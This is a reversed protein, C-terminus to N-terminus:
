ITEITNTNIAELAKGIVCGPLFQSNDIAQAVGPTNSTVLVQGKRIPGQVLCPVRGTLAVPLGPTAGNMLYAPNTSIIGAVTTDHSTTTVTIEANGGFVVVTGPAYEADATYNEALDAYQAQVAKGYVTSWWATSSGLTIAVNSSPVLSTGVTLGGSLTVATSTTAGRGTVTALTSNTGITVAGTAGSVTIDTGAVASTVGANNLTVSSGLSVAGGGSLGTGATVTISSNALQGNTIGASSSLQSTTIGSLQTLPVTGSSLNSANLSTLYTGTGVMNAGINGVTVGYVNTANITSVYETSNVIETNSFTQTGAVVLNGGVYLNGTIGAGGQVVLAGTTSSISTTTSGVVVNGGLPNLIIPYYVPSANSYGSQIWQGFQNPAGGGPYQGIALYNGGSGSLVTHAGALFTGAVPASQTGSLLQNQLTGSTAGANLNGAIGAGGTVILAGTGNNTSTTSNSITLANTITGGNFSGGGSSYSAGNGAWYIGNTTILNGGATINGTSSVATVGSINGGTIGAQGWLTGVFGPATVNGTAANVNFANAIGLQVNGGPTLYQGSMTPYWTGTSEATIGVYIASNATPVSGTVTGFTGTLVAGTNGITAANITAAIITGSSTIASTQTAGSVTLSGLTGVSTLSSATVTSNLTTGSLTGAPAIVASTTLASVRGYADTTVVPIATSSGASIAGPGTAPLTISSSGTASSVTINGTGTSSLNTVATLASTSIAIIRGYADTTVVPIASGSGTTVAGPGTAPLTLTVAGTSSSVTINGTGTSSLGTVGSNTITVTGGLAVPSGSITIGTGQSVTISSNTLASNPISGATINGGSLSTLYTGTGVMNAGINGVTAAYIAGASLTTGITVAGVTSLTGKIAVVNAATIRMVENNANQGGTAFIIANTSTMTALVLNGGGTTTNGQVYLYGDNPYTLSFGPQTYTSSNIGLDIYTDQNSGNDATAVFDSSAGSGNSINQNNIQVDGNSNNGSSQITTFPQITYGTGIGAYLAGFGQVNGFFQGSNGTITVNIVNGTTTINGTVNLNGAVTLNGQATTNVGLTGFSTVGALTTINPQSVTALTGTLTAGTNGITAANVTSAIITGNSTIGATTTQGSVTLSTLTGLSTINPQSASTVTAATGTTNQNLTPFSSPSVSGIVAQVNAATLGTVYTATTASTASGGISLSTATGTLGTGAGSFSGTSLTVGSTSVTVIATNAAWLVQNGNQSSSGRIYQTFSDWGATNYNVGFRAVEQGTTNTSTGNQATLQFNVDAGHTLVATPALATTSSQTVLGSVTLGTLTGVSTIAPQAATTVTGATAASGTTNQNLTPFSASSVSGIVAQVNAATLGTVYTATTAAPVTGTVNSGNLSTLYTGTGVINAGINGITPSTIATAIVTGNFTAGAFTPTSTTAINQPLSLLIAGTSTNATIQNATGTISLVGSNNLTINGGLSVAGGGTLGTGATVTVSSNTLASNPINTLSSGSGNFTGATLTGGVTASNHYATGSYVSYWWYSVNGLTDTVTLNGNPNIPGIVTTSDVTVTSGQVTLNGVVVLGGQISTNIGSTGISTVGDLTTINPQSASTVSAATGTTNQNLTPFSGASVSGIVAQVNAATLGTVYTATNALPVTGTVTGFAGNLTAGTNGITAAYISGASITTGVFLAGTIGAGGIVQLAGSSANSSTVGSNAILNGFTGTSQGPVSGSVTFSGGSQNTLTMVGNVASITAGNLDITNGSIYLEAWRQTPSGLNYTVNAGPLLNGSTVNAYSTVSINSYGVGTNSTLSHIFAQTTENWYFAANPVLGGARNMLLGIDSNAVSANAHLVTITDNFIEINTNLNNILPRTLAM